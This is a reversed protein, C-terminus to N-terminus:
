PRAGVGNLADAVKFLDGDRYFDVALLTPVHKRVRECERARAQLPGYANVRRANSALPAPDTNVWHNMLFVSGNRPGRNPKCSKALLAADLLQERRTFNFPTEAVISSYAVHYWPADGARKEALVVLRQNKEILQRLTPWPPSTRGRYAFRSLGADDMAKVFDAPTVADQNVIVLVENPHAVLFDRIDQLVPVLPSAGLECFTHCLFLGRKGKGKFGLRDRIRLAAARADKGLGDVLGNREVDEGPALDTRVRGNPLRDAYHTDILLGRIGDKLQRGIPAEQMASFWGPLPVSMSNHTAPFVVENLPKDCLERHGNCATIAPPPEDAGGTALFSGAAALVLLAAAAGAVIRRARHRTAPGAPAAEPEDAAAPAREPLTVLRLISEVGKYILYVGGLTAVLDVVAGPEAVVLVGAAVLGLARAVRLWTASPETALLQWARGLRAEIRIPRILSAAAGATVAGCGALVTAALKLDDLFAAWVGGAAARAGSEDISGLLLARAIVLAVVVLAGAIAVGVGARFVARRRDAALWIAAALAAFALLPLVLALFRVQRGTRALDGTVSGIDRQLLEYRGDDRLQKALKPQVAELAGHLLTGVDSVTLTVTDEDRRFIARHVDRVGAQFLNVFARSGVIAEAASSILPRAALVDPQARVAQDTIRDAILAKVDDNRLAATARNAFQDSNFLTRSLYGAVLACLLLAVGAVLLVRALAERRSRSAM